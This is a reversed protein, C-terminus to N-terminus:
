DAAEMEDHGIDELGAQVNGSHDNALAHCTAFWRVRWAPLEDVFPPWSLGETEAEDRLRDFVDQSDVGLKRAYNLWEHDLWRIASPKRPRGRPRKVTAGPIPAAGFAQYGASLPKGDWSRQGDEVAAETGMPREEPFQGRVWKDFFALSVARLEPNRERAKRITALIQGTNYGDALWDIVPKWNARSKPDIGAEGLAKEFTYDLYFGNVSPCDDAADVEIRPDDPRTRDVKRTKSARREGILGINATPYIAGEQNTSLRDEPKLTEGRMEKPQPQRVAGATQGSNRLLLPITPETTPETSLETTLETDSTHCAAHRVHSASRTPRIVRQTDGVFESVQMNALPAEQMNAPPEAHRVHSASLDDDPQWSRDRKRQKKPPMELDAFFEAGVNLHYRHPRRTNGPTIRILGAAVLAQNLRAIETFRLRTFEAIRRMSPYCDGNVDAHKAYCLMLHGAQHPLRLNWVWEHIDPNYYPRKKRANM